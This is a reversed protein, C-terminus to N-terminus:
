LDHEETKSVYNVSQTTDSNYLVTKLHPILQVKTHLMSQKWPEQTTVDFLTQEM